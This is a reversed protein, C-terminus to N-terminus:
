HMLMKLLVRQIFNILILILLSKPIWEEMQNEFLCDLLQKKNQDGIFQLEWNRQIYSKGRVRKFVRKFKNMLKYPINYPLKNTEFNYLNYPRQDQWTVKALNPSRKKIYAIQLRRNKLYQEPITCIFECMRDDYYPLQM